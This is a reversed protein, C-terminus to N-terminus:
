PRKTHHPGFRILNSIKRSIVFSFRVMRSICICSYWIVPSCFFFSFKALQDNTSPRRWPANLQLEISESGNMQMRCQLFFDDWTSWKGACGSDVLASRVCASYVFSYWNEICDIQTPMAQRARNKRSSRLVKLRMRVFITFVDIQMTCADDCWCRTLKHACCNAIVTRVMRWHMQCTECARQWGCESLKTFTTNRYLRTESLFTVFYVPVRCVSVSSLFRAIGNWKNKAIVFTRGEKM